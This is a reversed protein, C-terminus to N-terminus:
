NYSDFFDRVFVYSNENSFYALLHLLNNGDFFVTFKGLRCNIGIINDVINLSTSDIGSKSLEDNIYEICLNNNEIEKEISIKLDHEECYWNGSLNNFNYSM